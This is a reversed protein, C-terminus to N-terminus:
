LLFENLVLSIDKQFSPEISDVKTLIRKTKYEGNSLDLFVELVNDVLNFIWYEPIGGTAYVVSKDRDFELTSLSIEIVLHAFTPHSTAYFDERSDVIAIDPEPSSNKTLIPGEQRATFNPSIKNRFFSILKHTLAFHLPSKPMKQFIVGEILETNESILNQEGLKYYTEVSIAHMFKRTAPKELIDIGMSEGQLM